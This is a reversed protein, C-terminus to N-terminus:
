PAAFIMDALMYRLTAILVASLTAAGVANPDPAHALDLRSPRKRGPGHPNGRNDIQVANDPIPLVMFLNVM